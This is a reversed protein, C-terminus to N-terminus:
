RIHRSYEDHWTLPQKGAEEESCNSVKFKAAGAQAELERDVVICGDGEIATWRPSDRWKGVSATEEYSSADASNLVPSHAYGV